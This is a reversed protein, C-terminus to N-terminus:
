GREGRHRWRLTVVDWLMRLSDRVPDVKSNPENVWVVGVERVQHGRKKALWVLEVDYAFRDITMDAFLSRAVDGDILKFGCQTDSIGGVAFIRVLLNFTKGMLERYLPQRVPIESEPVARSGVVLAAEGAHAELKELEEIPTSLDADTLLVRDGRSALVGARLAAGKGRNEPQRLVRVGRGAHAEAVEVTADRSGDDVVLVEWSGGRGALWGTVRDLTAGLRAAEDYAPIVVSVDM